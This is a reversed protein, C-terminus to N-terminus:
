LAGPSEVFLIILDSLDALFEELELVDDFTNQDFWGILEEALMRRQAIAPENKLLYRNFYDRASQYPKPEQEVPGGCLFLLSPTNIIRCQKTEVWGAFEAVPDDM